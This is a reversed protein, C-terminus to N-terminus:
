QWHILRFTAAFRSFTAQDDAAHDLDTRLTLWYEPDGGNRFVVRLVILRGDCTFRGEAGILKGIRAHSIDQHDSQCHEHELASAVDAEPTRWELSNPEGFVSIEGGSSPRIKIGREPGAQDGTEGALGSPVKIAYGLARNRYTGTVRRLTQAQGACILILLLAMTRMATQAPVPNM